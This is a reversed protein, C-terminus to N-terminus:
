GHRLIESLPTVRDGPPISNQTIARADGIGQPQLDKLSMKSKLEKLVEDRIENKMSERIKNEIADPDKGWKQQFNYEKVVKMAELVPTSSNIVRAQIGPDVAIQRFPADEAFLQKYVTEQGYKDIAAERSAAIRGVIESDQAIVHPPPTASIEDAESYTGDLKKNIINLQRELNASRQSQQSAWDRTDKLRKEYEAVKTEYEKAKGKYINDDADWDIGSKVEPKKKGEVKVEEKPPEPAVESKVEPTPSPETTGAEVPTEVPTSKVFEALGLGNDQVVTEDAM